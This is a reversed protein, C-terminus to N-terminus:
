CWSENDKWSMARLVFVFKIIGQLDTASLNHSATKPIKSFTQWTSEALPAVRESEWERESERKKGGGRESM